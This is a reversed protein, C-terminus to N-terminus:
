PDTFLVSRSGVPPSYVGERLLQDRLALDNQMYVGPRLV